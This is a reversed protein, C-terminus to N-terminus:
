WWYHFNDHMLLRLKLRWSCFKMVKSWSIFSANKLCPPAFVKFDHTLAIVNQAVSLWTSKHRQPRSKPGLLILFLILIFLACSQIFLASGLMKSSCHIFLASGSMKSSCHIFLACRTIVRKKSLSLQFLERPLVCLFVFSSSSAVFRRCSFRSVKAPQAMRNSPITHCLNRAWEELDKQNNTQLLSYNTIPTFM